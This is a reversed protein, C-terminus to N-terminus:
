AVASVAATAGIRRVRFSRGLKRRFLSRLEPVEHEPISAKPIIVMLEADRFLIFCDALEFVATILRWDVKESDVGGVVHFKLCEDNMSVSRLKGCAHSSRYRRYGSECSFILLPLAVLLVIYCLQMVNSMEMHFLLNAAALGLGMVWMAGVIVAQARQKAFTNFYLARRFMKSDVKFTYSYTVPKSM